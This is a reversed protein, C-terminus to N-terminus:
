SCGCRVPVIWAAMSTDPMTTTPVITVSRPTYASPQGLNSKISYYYLLKVKGNGIYSSLLLNSVNMPSHCYKVSIGSSIAEPRMPVVIMKDAIEPRRTMNLPNGIDVLSYTVGMTRIPTAHVSRHIDPIKPSPQSSASKLTTDNMAAAHAKTLIQMTNNPPLRSQFKCAQPHHCPHPM